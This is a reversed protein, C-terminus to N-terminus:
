LDCHILQCTRKRGKSAIAQMISHDSKQYNQDNHGPVMGSCFESHVIVM